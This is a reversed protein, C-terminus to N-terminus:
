KPGAQTKALKFIKNPVHAMYIGVTFSFKPISLAWNPIAIKKRDRPTKVMNGIAEVIIFLIPTPLAVPYPTNSIQIVAMNGM